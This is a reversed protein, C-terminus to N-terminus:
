FKDKGFVKILEYVAFTVILEREYRERPLVIGRLSRGVEKGFVLADDLQQNIRSWYDERRGRLLGFISKQYRIFFEYERETVGTLFGSFFMCTRDEKYSPHMPEENIRKLRDILSDKFIQSKPECKEASEYHRRLLSFYEKKDIEEAEGNVLQAISDVM